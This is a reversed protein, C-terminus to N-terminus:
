SILCECFSTLVLITAGTVPWWGSVVAAAKQDKNDIFATGSLIPRGTVSAKNMVACSVMAILLATLRRIGLSRCSAVGRMNTFIRANPITLNDGGRMMPVPLYGMTTAVTTPTQATSITETIPISILGRCTFHAVGNTNEVAGNTATEMGIAILGEAVIIDGEIATAPTTEETRTTKAVLAIGAAIISSHQRAAMTQDSATVDLPIVITTGQAAAAIEIRRGAPLAVTARLRITVAQVVRVRAAARVERTTRDIQTVAVEMAERDEALAAAAVQVAVVRRGAAGDRDAVAVQVVARRAAAVRAVAGAQVRAAM